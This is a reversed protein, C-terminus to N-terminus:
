RTRSPSITRRTVVPSPSLELTMMFCYQLSAKSPTHSTVPLLMSKRAASPLTVEMSLKGDVLLRSRSSICFPSAQTNVPLPM